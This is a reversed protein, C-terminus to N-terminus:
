FWSPTLIVDDNITLGEYSNPVDILTVESNQIPEEHIAISKFFEREFIAKKIQNLKKTIDKSTTLKDAIVFADKAEDFKGLMLYATGKRYYAKTFTPNIKIAKNADDIATGYNEM